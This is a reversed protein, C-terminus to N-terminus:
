TASILTGAGVGGAERNGRQKEVGVLQGRSADVVGDAKNKGVRSHARVYKHMGGRM